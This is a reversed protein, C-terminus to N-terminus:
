QRETHCHAVDLGFTQLPIETSVPLCIASMTRQSRDKANALRHILLCDYNYHKKQMILKVQVFSWYHCMQVQLPAIAMPEGGSEVRVYMGGLEDLSATPISCSAAPLAPLSFLSPENLSIRTVVDSGITHHTSCLRSHYGSTSTGCYLQLRGTVDHIYRRSSM